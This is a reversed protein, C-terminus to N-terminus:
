NQMRNKMSNRILVFGLAILLIPWFKGIHRIYLWGFNNFIVLASFAFFLGALMLDSWEHPQQFYLALFGMAVAVTFVPWADDIQWFPIIEFNRLLFFGALFLLFVSWFLASRDRRKRFGQLARLGFALFIFPYIQIWSLELWGLKQALLYLGLLILLIGPLIT